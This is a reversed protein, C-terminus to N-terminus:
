LLCLAFSAATCLSWPPLSSLTILFPSLALTAAPAWAHPQLCSPLHASPGCSPWFAMPSTKSKIRLDLNGSKCKLSWEPQQVSSHNWPFSHFCLSKGPMGTTLFGGELAPFPSHNLGRNPFSSGVRGPPTAVLGEWELDWPGCSSFALASYPLGTCSSFVM